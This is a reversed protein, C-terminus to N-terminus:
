LGRSFDDRPPFVVLVTLILVVVRRMLLVGSLFGPLHPNLMVVFVEAHLIM